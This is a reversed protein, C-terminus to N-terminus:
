EKPAGLIVELTVEQGDRRVVVPVKDGAAFNRLAGDFDELSGLRYTGLKLIVDGAKLGGKAAPSGAAAGSIAYGGANEVGFAPISGFYPRASGGVRVPPVAGGHPDAAAVVQYAPRAPAAALDLAIESVFKAVKAIGSVNLTPFDDTPTHYEDHFDTFFFLVPIEKLNFSQHDSPGDGSKVKSLKFQPAENQKELLADFAAATGTGYVILKDNRLRGVMDLNLMTTTKELPILPERIYHASGILGREEATFAIFVIRRGLNKHQSLLRAVELLGASGSANDDAGNHIEHKTPARSGFGGLGLHDYHAGIVITEDAKPGTGELVGVVNKVEAEVREVHVEGKLKWGDLAISAPAGTEDIKAELQALTKGTVKRLLTSIATRNVHCVPIQRSQGAPDGFNFPLLEDEAGTLKRSAVVLADLYKKQRDAFDKKQDDTRKAAPGYDTELTALKEALDLVRKQATEKLEAVAAGNTVVLVAAAGHQFANSIKRELPAHPSRQADGGFKSHPNGENPLRRLVIVAKGQVDVGAYDDYEAHKDTIGYGVFVLPLEFKGSGSMRLPTYNTGPVWDYVYPETEGKEPPGIYSLHNPTGLKSSVTLKFKQFPSGDFNDTKLGLKKFEGAIFEAAKDLVAAGVGRGELEDSSLYKVHESVSKVNEAVAADPASAADQAFALGASAFLAGCFVLSLLRRAQARPPVTLCGTSMTNEFIPATSASRDLTSAAGAGTLLITV